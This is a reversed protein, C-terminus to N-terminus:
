KIGQSGQTRQPLDSSGFERRYSEWERRLKNMFQQYPEYEQLGQLHPDDRFLPYNPLGTVAAKKLLAVAKDPMDLLTYAGAANHYAHHTHLLSKGVRQARALLALARRRNGELARLQAECSLVVADDPAVRGAAHVAAEAEAFKGQYIHASPLFLHAFLNSPDVSLGKSYYAQAQDWHGESMAVHGQTVLVWPDEPSIIAAQAVKEQAEGHLGIHYEIAGALRLTLENGPNLELSRRLLRLAARNQYKKAATWLLQGRACYAEANNADIALARRIAAEARRLWKPAPEFHLAMQMCSEALRAWADAFKPDLRTAEELMEIRLRAEWRTVRSRREAARLFLEYAMPNRRPPTPINRAIAPAGRALTHELGGQMRFVEALSQAIEDQLQFLETSEAEFRSSMMASGDAANWAQVHVRLWREQRQISGEVITQVNLERAALLPDVSQNAYRLVTNASRVLLKGGASLHNIVADALAVSLFDDEPNPTLLKFPLVAVSRKGAIAAPLAVGLTLDRELNRLDVALERSSQYRSGPQKELLKHVIRSLEAPTQRGFVALPAPAETLIQQMVAAASPGPFPRSGAAAEYLVVGLSFLDSRQDTAEGRLQEPAMYALTGGGSGPTTVAPASLRSMTLTQEAVTRAVGFDLLKACGDARVFINEPKVDGHVVGREHAVALAEAVIAGIAALARPELPSETIVQRLARGSLLEMVIVLQEGHELVEYITMIGPHNLASAARAEALIRARHEEHSARALSLAKIAVDRQLRTDRARYVVGMGGRGIEAEVRYHAIASGTLTPLTSSM